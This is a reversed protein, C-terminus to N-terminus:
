SSLSAKGNEARGAPRRNQGPAGTRADGLDKRAEAAVKELDAILEPHDAALDKTEGPDDRVNFLLTKESDPPPRGPLVLKFDGKRVAALGFNEYYYFTDHLPKTAPADPATILPTLDVGDILRDGPVRAGAATAFTAYLDFGAALQDCTKGAPAKGPWRIIMPVRTGGEWRSQYKGGRLVHPRSTDVDGFRGYVSKLEPHKQWLPGNDSTFVILTDDALHLRELTETIRGVMWDLCLVADGFPGDGSQNEFRKPVFWPTHTEINSLHLFFPKDKNAEIFKESEEVFRDPLTELKAPAEITKLNRILPIPPFGRPQNDKTLREPGHDNPYPIGFFLDFGHKTPLHEPRHGLHWKGICATAYGASKLLEAITIERDALGVNDDPFLVRPLGVRQPYCGTMLAARTPTCTPAPAYFHTFRVGQQALKDLNPTKLKPAGYCSLDDYGVDDAIIHIINPPRASVPVTLILIVGACLAVLRTLMSGM